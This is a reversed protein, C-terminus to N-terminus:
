ADTQGFRFMKINGITFGSSEALSLVKGINLYSDPKIM